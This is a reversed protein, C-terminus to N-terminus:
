RIGGHHSCAGQKGGSSSVWGDACVVDYGSISGSTGPSGPVADLLYSVDVGYRRGYDGVDKIYQTILGSYRIDNVKYSALLRYHIGFDVDSTYYHGIPPPPKKATTCTGSIAGDLYLDTVPWQDEPALANAAQSLFLGARGAELNDCITTRLNRWEASSLKAGMKQSRALVTDEVIEEITDDAPRVPM